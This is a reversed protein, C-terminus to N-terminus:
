YALTEMIGDLIRITDPILFKEYQLAAPLSFVRSFILLLLLFRTKFSLSVGLCGSEEGASEAEFLM